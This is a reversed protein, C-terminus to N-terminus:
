YRRATYGTPKERFTLSVIGQSVSEGPTVTSWTCMDENNILGKFGSNFGM